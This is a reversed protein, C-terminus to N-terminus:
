NKSRHRSDTISRPDTIRSTALVDKWCKKAKTIGIEEM